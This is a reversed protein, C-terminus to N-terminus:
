LVFHSGSTLRSVAGPCVCKELAAPGGRFISGHLTLHM